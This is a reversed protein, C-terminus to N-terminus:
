QVPELIICDIRLARNFNLLDATSTGAANEVKLAVTLSKKPDEEDYVLNSYPFEFDKAVLMKMQAPNTTFAYSAGSQTTTLVKNNADINANTVQVGASNVYSFYFKVKNLRLDAANGISTPVFVCYINYKASLTSPLPFNVFLKSLSSTSTPDFLAYYNNSVTYGTGINSVASAAYNSTVRGYSSHEAEVRIEKYWSEDAKSYLQSTVYSLGNSMETTQANAFLRNPHVFANGWTSFLTDKAIPPTVKDRFFLDQVLYWRAFARQQVFGGDKELTKFCPYIRGYAETWATNDPLIATYISDETNLNGLYTLVNNTSKFISDVLVEDKYSADADFELKTISNIYTRLSDLGDAQNIFEWINMRYPVYEGLIHVIGNATALNAQVISKGGFTYGGTGIELNLLKNDLMLITKRSIGSTTYSFRTIHNTVIKKVLDLDGLNVGELAANNPAWVTFTQSESLISDYGTLQLMETFTSLESRSQIYEYLNLDSKNAAEASYHSDWEDSCSALMVAFTLIAIVPIGFYRLKM